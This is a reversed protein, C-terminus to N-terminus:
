FSCNQKKLSIKGLFHMELECCSLHVDDDFEVNCNLMITIILRPAFNIKCVIKIRAVLIAQFLYKQDLFSFTPM